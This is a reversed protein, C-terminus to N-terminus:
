NQQTKQNKPYIRTNLHTQTKKPNKKIFENTIGITSSKFIQKEAKTRHSTQSFKSSQLFSILKTLM